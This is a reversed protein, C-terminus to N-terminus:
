EDMEISDEHRTRFYAMIGDRLKPKKDAEVELVGYCNRYVDTEPDYENELLIEWRSV